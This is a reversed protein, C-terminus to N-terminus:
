DDDDDRHVKFSLSMRVRYSVIQGDEDVKLDLQEVEAVRLDRLTRGASSIAVKAAEEWSTTSSGVVRIVRYVSGDM